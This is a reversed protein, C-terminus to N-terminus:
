KIAGCFASKADRMLFAWLRTCTHCPLVLSTRDWLDWHCQSLDLHCSTLDTAWFLQTKLPIVCVSTALGWGLDSILNTQTLFPCSNSVLSSSSSLAHIWLLPPCVRWLPGYWLSNKLNAVPLYIDLVWFILILFSFSSMLKSRLLFSFWCISYIVTIWAMCM